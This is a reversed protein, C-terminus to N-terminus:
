VGQRREGQQRRDAASRKTEECVPKESQLQQDLWAALDFGMFMTGVYFTSGASVQIRGSPGYFTGASICTWSGDANKCFHTAFEDVCRM